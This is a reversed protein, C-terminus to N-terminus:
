PEDATHGFLARLIGSRASAEYHKPSRITAPLKALGSFTWRITLVPCEAASFGHDGSLGVTDPANAYMAPDHGLSRPPFWRNRYVAAGNEPGRPRLGGIALGKEWM